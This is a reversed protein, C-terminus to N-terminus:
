ATAERQRRVVLRADITSRDSGPIMALLERVQGRTIPWTELDHGGPTDAFRRLGDLLDLM